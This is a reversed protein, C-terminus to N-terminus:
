KLQKVKLHLGCEKATAEEWWWRGEREHQNPGIAKTCPECGLSVFGHDHLENYPIDFARITNWVEESSSNALPNIKILQRNPAAFRTDIEVIPLASRTPSQDKRQGSIWADFQPLHARLPELKRIACCEEHGEEYFSFLGKASVLAKVAEPDPTLLSLTIGYHLRVAELYRVTAPPLRGTDLTFVEPSQKLDCKKAAKLAHEIVVVDEAGSFSLACRPFLPLLRLLVERPSAEQLEDNLEAIHSESFPSISHM